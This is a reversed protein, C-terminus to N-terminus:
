MLGFQTFKVKNRSKSVVFSIIFYFYFSDNRNLFFNFINSHIYKGNKLLHNQIEQTIEYECCGQSLHTMLGPVCTCQLLCINQFSILQCMHPTPTLKKVLEVGGCIEFCKKWAVTNQEIFTLNGFLLKMLSISCPPWEVHYFVM